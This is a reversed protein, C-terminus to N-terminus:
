GTGWLWQGTLTGLGGIVGSLLAWAWWYRSRGHNNIEDETMWRGKTAPNHEPESM